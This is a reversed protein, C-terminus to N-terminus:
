CNEPHLQQDDAVTQRHRAECAAPPTSGCNTCVFYTDGDSCWETYYDCNM